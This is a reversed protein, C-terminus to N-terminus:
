LFFCFMRVQHIDLCDVSLLIVIAQLAELRDEREYLAVVQQAILPPLRPPLSGDLLPAELARLYIAKSADAEAVLEWLKGFLLDTNELQICYEICTSLMTALSELENGDSNPLEDMYQMLVQCVKDRAIQKRRQKSGRLGVVAKGKDRYFDLGLALAEPFRRQRPVLLM